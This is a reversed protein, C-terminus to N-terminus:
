PAFGEEVRGDEWTSRLAHLESALPKRLSRAERLAESSRLANSRPAHFAEAQAIVEELLSALEEPGSLEGRRLRAQVESLCVPKKVYEKYNPVRRMDVPEVFRKARKWEKVKTLIEDAMYEWGTRQEDLQLLPGRPLRKSNGKM